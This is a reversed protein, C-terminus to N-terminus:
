PIYRGTYTIRQFGVSVSPFIGGEDQIDIAIQEITFISTVHEVKRQVKEKEM